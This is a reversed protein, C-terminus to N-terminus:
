TTDPQSRVFKGGHQCLALGQIELQSLISSVQGATLGSREILQDMTQPDFGLHQYLANLEDPVLSESSAGVQTEVAAAPTERLVGSIPGLEEIIHQGSEVLKAGQRILRNCGKALPAHISGPIAFVERGQEGAMRATILSGSKAAAEVVLTGLSLGSILRNRRPFNSRSPQTGLPFESIILGSAAIDHALQKHRAPYVRDIGTGIVAVTKGGAELAGLHAEADIGAAMGSVVGLGAQSLYRAFARATHMGDATPNRSGVMAILPQNLLDVDGKAYFLVPPDPIEKLLRPYRPDTFPIFHNDPSDALWTELTSLAAADVDGTLTSVAEPLKELWPKLKVGPASCVAQASGFEEILRSAGRYGVGRASLIKLWASLEEARM